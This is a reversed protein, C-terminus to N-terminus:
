TASANWSVVIANYVGHAITAATISGTRATLWAATLGFGFVPVWSMPPHVITFVAASGLMAWRLAMTRELSRFILGRFIFEEFIPAFVVALVAIWLSSYGGLTPPPTEEILEAMGPIHPALEIYGVGIGGVVAGLGVIIGLHGALHWLGARDSPATLRARDDPSLSALISTAGM